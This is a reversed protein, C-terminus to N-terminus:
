SRWFNKSHYVQCIGLNSFNMSLREIWICVIITWQPDIVYWAQILKSLILFSIYDREQLLEKYSTSIPWYCSFHCCWTSRLDGGLTGAFSHRYRSIQRPLPSENIPNQLILLFKIPQFFHHLVEWASPITPAFCPSLFSCLPFALLGPHSSNLLLFPALLTAYFYPQSLPHLSSKSCLTGCVFVKIEHISPPSNSPRKWSALSPIWIRRLSNVRAASHSPTPNSIHGHPFSSCDPIRHGCTLSSLPEFWLLSPVDRHM